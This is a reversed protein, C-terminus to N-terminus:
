VDKKEKIIDQAMAQMWGFIGKFQAKCKICEMIGNELLDEQDPDLWKMTSKKCKPCILPEGM